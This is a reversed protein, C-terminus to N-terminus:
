MFCHINSRVKSSFFLSKQIRSVFIGTVSAEFVGAALLVLLAPGVLFWGVVPIGAGDGHVEQLFM